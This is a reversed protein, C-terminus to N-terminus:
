LENEEPQLTYNHNFYLFQNDYALSFDSPRLISWDTDKELIGCQTYIYGVFASCWFRSDKQPMDDKRFFAEMWDKANFDYPKNHVTKHLESLNHFCIPDCQISRYYVAGKNYKYEEVMEKLPTIQIGVKHTHDEVDLISEFGSHWVYLGRLSPDIFTPDKLVMGIHTYPSDTSWKILRSLIGWIGSYGSSFLVIDGTKLHEM